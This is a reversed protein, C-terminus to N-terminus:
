GDLDNIAARALAGRARSGLPLEALPLNRAFPPMGAVCFEHRVAGAAIRRRIDAPVCARQPPASELSGDEIALGTAAAEVSTLLDVLSKTGFSRLSLVQDITLHTLSGAQSVIRARRLINHTRVELLLDGLKIVRAPPGLTLGSVWEDFGWQPRELHAIVERALRCCAAYEFRQWVSHDLACLYEDEHRSREALFPALVSPALPHGFRPYPSIPM